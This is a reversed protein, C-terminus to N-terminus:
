EPTSSEWQFLPLLPSKQGRCGSFDGGGRLGAGAFGAPRHLASSTPGAAELIRHPTQRTRSTPSRLAPLWGGGCGATRLACLFRRHLQRHTKTQLIARRPDAKPTPSGVPMAGRRYANNASFPSQRQTTSRLSAHSYSGGLGGKEIPRVLLMGSAGKEFPPVLIRKVDGEKLPPFMSGGGVMKKFSTLITTCGNAPQHPQFSM